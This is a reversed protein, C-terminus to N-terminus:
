FLRQEVRQARATGQLRNLEARLEIMQQMFPLHEIGGSKSGGSLSTFRGNTALDIIMAELEAVTFLDRYIFAPSPV